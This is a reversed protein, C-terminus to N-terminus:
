LRNESLGRDRFDENMGGKNAGSRLPEMFIGSMFYRAKFNIFNGCFVLMFAVTEFFPMRFM